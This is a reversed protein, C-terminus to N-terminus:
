RIGTDIDFDLSTTRGAEIRFREDPAPTGQIGLSHSLTVRYSGPQLSLEFRGDGDPRVEAVLREGVPLRAYVLVLISQFTGPPPPCEQGEVEVPCFPGASIEGVLTGAPGETELTSGNCGLGALLCAALATQRRNTSRRRDVADRGM